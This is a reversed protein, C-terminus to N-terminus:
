YREVNIDVGSKLEEFLKERKRAPMTSVEYDITKDIERELKEEGQRVRRDAEGKISPEYDVCGHEKMENDRQRKTSIVEGTIPSEYADFKGRVFFSPSGKIIRNAMQGCEPCPAFQYEIRDPDEFVEGCSCRHKPNM